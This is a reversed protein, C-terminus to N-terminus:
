VYKNMVHLSLAIFQRGVYIKIIFVYQIETSTERKKFYKARWLLM